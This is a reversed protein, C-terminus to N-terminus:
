FETNDPRVPDVAVEGVLDDPIAPAEKLEPPLGMPVKLLMPLSAEPLPDDPLTDMKVPGEEALSKKAMEGAEELKARPFDWTTRFLKLEGAEVHIVVALWPGNVAANELANRTRSLAEKQTENKVYM